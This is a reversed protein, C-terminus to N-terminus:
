FIWLGLHCCSCRGDHILLYYSLQIFLLPSLWVGRWRRKMLSFDVKPKGPSQALSMDEQQYQLENLDAILIKHADQESLYRLYEEALNKRLKTVQQSSFLFPLLLLLSTM